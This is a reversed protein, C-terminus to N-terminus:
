TGRYGCSQVFGLCDSPTLTDLALKVAVALEKATDAAIRRLTAKVKSRLKEIPNLDPSYPLHLALGADPLYWVSAGATEIAEMLPDHRRGVGPRKQERAVLNLAQELGAFKKLRLGMQRLARCVTSEVM